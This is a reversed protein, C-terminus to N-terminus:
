FFLARLVSLKLVNKYFFFLREINKYHRTNTYHFHLVYSLHFTKLLVCFILVNVRHTVCSKHQVSNRVKRSYNLLRGVTRAISLDPRPAITSTWAQSGTPFYHANWAKVGRGLPARSYYLSWVSLIGSHCLVNM